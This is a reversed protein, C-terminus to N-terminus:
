FSLRMTHPRLSASSPCFPLYIVDKMNPPCYTSYAMMSVYTVQHVFPILKNKNYTVMSLISILELSAVSNAANKNVKVCLAQCQKVSFGGSLVVAARKRQGGTDLRESM